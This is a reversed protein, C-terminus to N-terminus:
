AVKRRPPQLLRAAREIACLLDRSRFPKELLESVGLAEAETRTLWDAFATALIVPTTLQAMRVARLVEIGSLGPMQVDAVIVDPRQADSRGFIMSGVYHLAERGDRAETVAYGRRRLTAAILGRLVEQDEALLVRPVRPRAHTGNLPVTALAYTEM